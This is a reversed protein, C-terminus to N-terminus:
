LLPELNKASARIAAFKEAKAACKKKVDKFGNKQVVM